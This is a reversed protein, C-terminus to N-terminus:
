TIDVTEGFSAGRSRDRQGGAANSIEVNRESRMRADFRVSRSNECFWGSKSKIESRTHASFDNSVRNIKWKKRRVGDGTTKAILKAARTHPSITRSRRSCSQRPWRCYNPQANTRGARKWCDLSTVARGDPGASPRWVNCM